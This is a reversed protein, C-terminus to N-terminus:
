ETVGEVVGCTAPGIELTGSVLGLLDIELVIATVSLSGDPNEVQRNLTGSISSGSPIPIEFETNPEPEVELSEGLVSAGVLSTSGTVGSLDASCTASILEAALFPDEFQQAGVDLIPILDEFLAVDAVTSEATAFGDPGLAGEAAATLVAATLGIVGVEEDVNLVQESVSGGEPPLTVSPEPGFTLDLQQATVEESEIIDDIIEVELDVFLGDASGIVSTVTPTQAGASPFGAVVLASLAGLLFLRRVARM